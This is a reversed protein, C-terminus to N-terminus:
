KKPKYKANVIDRLRREYKDRDADMKMCQYVRLWPVSLVDNHDTYGMRRAYWDILGFPGFNLDNIGAAVEDEDPTHETAKFLGGIRELEKTVWNIFGFVKDARERLIWADPRRTKLILRVLTVVSKTTTGTAADQLGLLDGFSLDDLTEPVRRGCLREPRPQKNLWERSTVTLAKEIRLIRAATPINNYKGM